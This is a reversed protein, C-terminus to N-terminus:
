KIIAISINPWITNWNKKKVRENYVTQREKDSFYYPTPSVRFNTLDDTGFPIFVELEQYDNLRAAIATCKEPFKSVADTSSVYKETNPSHKNMYYQNKIEWNYEPYKRKIQNEIEVTQEYSINKDFFIVDIDSLNINSFTNGTSLYDWIYNRITGACLWCDNLQFSHIIKLLAMLESNQKILKEVDIM